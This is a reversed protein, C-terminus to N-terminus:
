DHWGRNKQMKVESTYVDIDDIISKFYGLQYEFYELGKKLSVFKSPCAHQRPDQMFYGVGGKKSLRQLAESFAPAEDERCMEDESYLEPQGLINLAALVLSAEKSKEYEGEFIKSSHEDFPHYPNICFVPTHYKEFIERACLYLIHDNPIHVSLLILSKFGMKFSRAAITEILEKELNMGVSITGKFGDTSGSWSYHLEPLVLGDAGEAIRLAFAKSILTDTGIPQHPGHMEVCGVPLVAVRNGGSMFEEVEPTTLEMLFRSRIM